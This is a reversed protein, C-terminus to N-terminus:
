YTIGFFFSLCLSCLWPITPPLLEFLCCWLDGLPCSSSIALTSFPGRSLHLLSLFVSHLHRGGLIFSGRFVSYHIGHGPFTPFKYSFPEPNTFPATRSGLRVGLFRLKALGFGPLVNITFELCPRRPLHWGSHVRPQFRPVLNISGRQLLHQPEQQEM